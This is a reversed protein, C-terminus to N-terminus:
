RCFRCTRLIEPFYNFHERDYGNKRFCLPHPEMANWPVLWFWWTVIPRFYPPRLSTKIREHLMIAYLFFVVMYLCFFLMLKGTEPDLCLGGMLEELTDFFHKPEIRDM